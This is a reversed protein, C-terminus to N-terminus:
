TTAGAACVSCRWMVPIAAWTVTVDILRKGIAQPCMPAGDVWLHCILEDRPLLIKRGAPIRDRRLALEASAPGALQLSVDDFAEYLSTFACAGGVPGLQLPHRRSYSARVQSSIVLLVVIAIRKDM